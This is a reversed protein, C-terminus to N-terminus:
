NVSADGRWSINSQFVYWLAMSLGWISKSEFCNSKTAGIWDVYNSYQNVTSTLSETFALASAADGAASADAVVFRNLYSLPKGLVVAVVVFAILFLVDVTCM